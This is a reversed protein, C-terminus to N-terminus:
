LSLYFVPAPYEDRHSPKTEVRIKLPERRNIDYLIRYKTAGGPILDAQEFCSTIDGCTYLTVGGEQHLAQYIIDYAKQYAQSDLPAITAPPNPFPKLCLSDKTVFGSSFAPLLQPEGADEPFAMPTTALYAGHSAFNLHMPFNMRAYTIGNPTTKSLFLSVSESPIECVAERIATITDMGQDVHMTTLQCLLDVYHIATDGPLRFGAEPNYVASQFTYGAKLVRQAVPIRNPIVPDFFRSCGNLVFASVPEGDRISTFPHGWERDQKKGGPTRGHIFGITGPLNAANTEALLADLNGVVKAFHIKGEHITAIGTYFGSDFGEQRRMMDILIPAAQKTGVYGAINCM